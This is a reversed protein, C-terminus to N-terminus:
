VCRVTVHENSLQLTEFTRYIREARRARPWDGSNMWRRRATSGHKRSFRSCSTRTTSSCCKRTRGCRPTIRGGGNPRCMSPRLASGSKTGAVPTTPQLSAQQRHIKAVQRPLTLRSQAFASIAGGVGGCVLILGSIHHDTALAVVGIVACALLVGVLVKVAKRRHLRLAHLHHEQTLTGSIMRREKHYRWSDLREQIRSIRSADDNLPPDSEHCETM